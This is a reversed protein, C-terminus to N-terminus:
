MSFSIGRILEQWKSSCNRRLAKSTEFSSRTTHHCMLLTKPLNLIPRIDITDDHSAVCLCEAFSVRKQLTSITRQLSSTPSGAADPFGLSVVM